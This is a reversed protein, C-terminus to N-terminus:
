RMSLRFERQLGDAGADTVHVARGRDARRLWGLELLRTPSRAASRAPSTTPRSPGTSATACRATRPPGRDRAARAASAGAAHPRYDVDRGPASLRDEGDFHHLGDGGTVAGEAILAQMLAVGLRGALHDYCTRATRIAHARTGERLSRM